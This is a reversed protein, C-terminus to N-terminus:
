RATKKRARKPKRPATMKEHPVPPTNVLRGMIQRALASVEAPPRDPGSNPPKKPM